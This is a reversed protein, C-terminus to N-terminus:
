FAYTSASSATCPFLAAVTVRGDRSVYVQSVIDSLKFNAEMQEIVKM